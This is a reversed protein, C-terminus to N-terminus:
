SPSTEPQLAAIGGPTTPTSRKRTRRKGNGVFTLLFMFVFALVLVIMSMATAFRPDAANLAVLSVQLNDKLLLAALTYEGLVLAVALFSAGAVATKINPLVIRWMVGAWSSGLSRAAESLTKVDIARLGADIARYAYPLVLVVYALCLWVSNTGFEGFTTGLFRYIPYYGVVLVIAPITLPLLCIFEVLGNVKQVRLRVWTMTPVLLVITIVVTLVMLVLSAVLGDTLKDRADPDLKGFDIIKEWAVWIRKGALNRTSFDFMSLLPIIFFAMVMVVVVWRTIAQQRRRAARLQRPVKTGAPTRPGGPEAVATGTSM